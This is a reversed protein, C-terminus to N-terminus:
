KWYSVVYALPDPRPNNRGIFCRASYRQAVPLAAMADPQNDLLAIQTPGDMLAWGAAGVNVARVNAPSYAICDEPTIAPPMRPPGWYELIYAYLNTRPNGRGIYCLAQYNRALALANAGDAANDLVALLGFGDTLVWGTQEQVIQLRSNNYEICDEYLDTGIFLPLTGILGQYTAHITATGTTLATARGDPQIAVVAPNSSQWTAQSTVDRLSNDSYVAVATMPARVGITIFTVQTSVTVLSLTASASTKSSGCAVCAAGAAVLAFRSFPTTPRTYSAGV